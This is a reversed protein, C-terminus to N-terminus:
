MSALTKTGKPWIVAALAFITLGGGALCLLGGIGGFIIAFINGILQLTGGKLVAPQITTSRLRMVWKFHLHLQVIM